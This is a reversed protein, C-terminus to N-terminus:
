RVQRWNARRTGNRRRLDLSRARHTRDAEAAIESFSRSKKECVQRARRSAGQQARTAFGKREPSSRRSTPTKLALTSRSASCALARAFRIGHAGTRVAAVAADANAEHVPSPRTDITSTAAGRQQVVHALEHTLLAEGGRTEPVHHPHERLLHGERDDSRARQLSRALDAAYAGTHLRVDSFTSGLTSTISPSVGTLREAGRQDIPARPLESANNAAGGRVDVPVARDPAHVPVDLLSRMPSRPAEPASLGGLTPQGIAPAAGGPAIANDVGSTMEPAASEPAHVPINLLNFRAGDSAARQVM